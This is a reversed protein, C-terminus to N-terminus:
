RQVRGDNSETRIYKKSNEGSRERSRERSRNRSKERKESYQRAKEVRDNDVRAHRYSHSDSNNGKRKNNNRRDEEDRDSSTKNASIRVPILRKPKYPEPTRPYETVPTSNSTSSYPHTQTYGYDPYRHHNQESAYIDDYRPFPDTQQLVPQHFAQNNHSENFNEHSDPFNQSVTGDTIQRSSTALNNKNSVVTKVLDVVTNMMVRNQEDTRNMMVRNQEQQIRQNEKDSKMMDLIMKHTSTQNQEQREQNKQNVEFQQQQQQEQREQNKQNVEFQQQQQEQQLKMMKELNEIVQDKKEPINRLSEQKFKPKQEPIRSDIGNFSCDDLAPMIKKMLQIKTWQLQTCIETALMWIMDKRKPKGPKSGVKLIVDIEKAIAKLHNYDVNELLQVCKEYNVPQHDPNAISINQTNANSTSVSQADQNHENLNPLNGSQAHENLNPSVPKEENEDNQNISNPVQDTSNNSDYSSMEPIAPASDSDSDSNLEIWHDPDIRKSSKPIKKTDILEKKIKLDVASSRIVNAILRDVEREDESTSM